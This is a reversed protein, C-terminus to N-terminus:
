KRATRHYDYRRMMLKYGAPDSKDASIRDLHSEYDHDGIRYEDAQPDQQSYRPAECQMDPASYHLDALEKKYNAIANEAMIILHEGGPVNKLWLRREALQKEYNAIERLVFTIREDKSTKPAEQAPSHNANFTGNVVKKQYSDMGRGTKPRSAKEMEKREEDAAVWALWRQPNTIKKTKRQAEFSQLAKALVTNSYQNAYQEAQEKNLNFAAALQMAISQEM